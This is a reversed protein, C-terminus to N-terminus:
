AKPFEPQKMVRQGQQFHRRHHYAEIRFYEGLNFRIVGSVPSSVKTKNLDIHRKAIQEGAAIVQDLVTLYQHYIQLDFHSNPTPQVLKPAPIKNTAKPSVLWYMLKGFFTRKHPTHGETQPPRDNQLIQTIQVQYDKYLLLLHQLIEAISWSKANPKWNLQALSLAGYQQKVEDQLKKLDNLSNALCTEQTEVTNIM